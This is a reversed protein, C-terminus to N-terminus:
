HAPANPWCRACCCKMLCTSVVGRQRATESSSENHLLANLREEITRVLDHIELTGTRITRVNWNRNIGSQECWVRMTGDQVKEIEEKTQEPTLGANHFSELSLHVLTTTHYNLNINQM